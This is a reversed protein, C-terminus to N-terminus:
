MILLAAFITLRRGTFDCVQCNEASDNCHIGDPLRHDHRGTQASLESNQIRRRGRLRFSRRAAPKEHAIKAHIRLIADFRKGSNSHPADSPASTCEVRSLAQKEIRFRGPKRVARTRHRKEHPDTKKFVIIEPNLLIQHAIVRVLRIQDIAERISHVREVANACEVPAREIHRQQLLPERHAAKAM